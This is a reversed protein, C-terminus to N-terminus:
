SKQWFAVLFGLGGCDTGRKVECGSSISKNGLIRPENCVQVDYVNEESFTTGYRYNYMLGTDWEVGLWGDTSHFSLQKKKFFLIFFREKCVGYPM